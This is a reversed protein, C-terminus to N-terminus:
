SRLGNLLICSKCTLCITICSSAYMHHIMNEIHNPPMHTNPKVAITCVTRINPIIMTGVNEYKFIKDIIKAKM